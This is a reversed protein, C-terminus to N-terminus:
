IETNLDTLMKQFLAKQDLDVLDYEEEVTLDDSSHMYMSWEGENYELASLNEIWDGSNYYNIQKGSKATISKIEPHHIHGCIVADVNRKVALEAALDEFDNIFKIASKVNNKIRKSFSVKPQSFVERVRNIFVNLFILGDYGVAGLKALWKSNNMVVDLADGHFFWYKVKDLELTLHNEIKINGLQLGQFKRITEDHNGTIYFVKTGKSALNLIQKLVKMHSKPFYRKKFQWIDIIDGNLILTGPDISKLYTNLAKARCGYTGLHIDSVVVLELKRKIKNVSM